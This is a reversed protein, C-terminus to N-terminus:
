PINKVILLLNVAPLKLIIVVTVPVLHRLGVSFDLPFYFAQFMCQVYTCKNATRQFAIHFLLILLKTSFIHWPMYSVSTAPFVLNTKTNVSNKGSFLSHILLNYLNLCTTNKKSLNVKLLNTHLCQKYFFM